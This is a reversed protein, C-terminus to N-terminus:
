SAPSLLGEGLVGIARHLESGTVAEVGCHPDEHWAEVLVCSLEAHPIVFEAVSDALREADVLGGLNHADCEKQKASLQEM